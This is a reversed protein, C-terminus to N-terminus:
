RGSPRASGRAGASTRACATGARARGERRARAREAHLEGADCHLLAALYRREDVLLGVVRRREEADLVLPAVRDERMTGYLKM